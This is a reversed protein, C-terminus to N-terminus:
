VLCIGSIQVESGKIGMQFIYRVVSAYGSVTNKERQVTIVMEAITRLNM